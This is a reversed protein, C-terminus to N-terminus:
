LSDNTSKPKGLHDHGIIALLEVISVELLEIDLKLNVM